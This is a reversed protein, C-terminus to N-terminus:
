TWMHEFHVHDFHPIGGNAAAVATHVDNGLAIVADNVVKTNGQAFAQLLATIDADINNGGGNGGGQAQDHGSHGCGSDGGAAVSGGGNGGGGSGGAAAAAAPFTVGFGDNTLGDVPNNTPHENGDVNGSTTTNADAIHTTTAGVVTTSTSVYTGGGNPANNGSVDNADAVYGFGAATLKAADTASVTGGNNLADQLAQLATSTDATLTGGLL